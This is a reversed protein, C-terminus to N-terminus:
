KFQNVHVQSGSKNIKVKQFNIKQDFRPGADDLATVMAIIIQRDLCPQKQKDGLYRVEM